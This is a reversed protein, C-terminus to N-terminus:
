AGERRAISTSVGVSFVVGFIGAMATLAAAIWMVRLCTPDFAM